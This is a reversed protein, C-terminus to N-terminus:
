PPLGAPHLLVSSGTSLPSVLRIETPAHARLAPPYEDIPKCSGNFSFPQTCDQTVADSPRLHAFVLVYVCVCACVCAHVGVHMCAWVCARGCAHVGVRMCAWMCACMCAWMCACM